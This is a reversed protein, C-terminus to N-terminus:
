SPLVPHDEEEGRGVNQSTSTPSHSDTKTVSKSTAGGLIIVQLVTSGRALFRLIARKQMHRAVKSPQSAAKRAVSSIIIM